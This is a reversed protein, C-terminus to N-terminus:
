RNLAPSALTQLRLGRAVADLEPRKAEGFARIEVRFGSRLRVILACKTAAPDTCDYFGHGDSEPLDLKPQTYEQSHQVWRDYDGQDRPARELTVTVIAPGRVYSRRVFDAETTQPGAAFEGATDPLALAGHQPSAPTADDDRGREPTAPSTGDRDSPLTAATDTAKQRGVLAIAVIAIAALASVPAVWTTNRVGKERVPPELLLLICRAARTDRAPGARHHRAEGLPVDDGPQLDPSKALSM